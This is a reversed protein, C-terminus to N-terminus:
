LKELTRRHFQGSYKVAHQRGAAAHCVASTVLNRKGADTQMPALYTLQLTRRANEEQM